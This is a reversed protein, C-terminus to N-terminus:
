GRRRNIWFLLAAFLVLILWFAPHRAAKKVRDGAAGAPAAIESEQSLRNEFQDSVGNEGRVANRIAEKAQEPPLGAARAAASDLEAWSQELMATVAEEPLTGAYRSLAAEDESFLEFAYRRPDFPHDAGASCAVALLIIAPFFLRKFFM